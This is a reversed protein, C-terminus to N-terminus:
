ECPNLIYGEEGTLKIYDSEGHINLTDKSTLKNISSRRDVFYEWFSLPFNTEQTDKKVSWKIM